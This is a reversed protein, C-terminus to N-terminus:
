AKRAFRLEISHIAQDAEQEKQGKTLKEGVKGLLPMTYDIDLKLRTKKRDPQL